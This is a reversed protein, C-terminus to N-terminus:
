VLLSEMEMRNQVINIGRQLDSSDFPKSIFGYAQLDILQQCTTWDIDASLFIVPIRHIQMMERALSIRDNKEKVGINMLVIDPPTKRIDELATKMCSILGIVEYGLRVLQECIDAAIIMQKEIIMIKPHLTKPM